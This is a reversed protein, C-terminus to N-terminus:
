FHDSFINTVDNNNGVNVVPFGRQDIANQAL